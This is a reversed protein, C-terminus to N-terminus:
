FVLCCAGFPTAQELGRMVLSASLSLKVEGLFSVKFRLVIFRDTPFWSILLTLDGFPSYSQQSWKSAENIKRLEEGKQRSFAKMKQLERLEGEM